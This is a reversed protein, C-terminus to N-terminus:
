AYGVFSNGFPTKGRGKLVGEACLFSVLLDNCFVVIGLPNSSEGKPFSQGEDSRFPLAPLCAQDVFKISSSRIVQGLKVSSGLRSAYGVFRVSLSSRRTQSSLKVPSNPQLSRGAFRVFSNLKRAYCVLMVRLCTGLPLKEEDKLFVWAAYFVSCCVM